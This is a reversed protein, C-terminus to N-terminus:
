SAKYNQDTSTRAIEDKKVKLKNLIKERNKQYYKKKREKVEPKQRYKKRREREEMKIEKENWKDWAKRFDCNQNLTRLPLTLPKGTEILVINKRIERGCIKDNSGM